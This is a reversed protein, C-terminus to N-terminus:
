DAIAGLPNVELEIYDPPQQNAQLFGEVVEELWLHEDRRKFTSWINEDASRFSFYLFDDDYLVRVETKHRSKSGDRNNVLEGVVRAQAWAAEDLKGDVKIREVVRAVEYTPLRLQQSYGPLILLFIPGLARILARFQAAM